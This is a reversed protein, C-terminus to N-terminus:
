GNLMKAVYRHEIVCVVIIPAEMDDKIRNCILIFFAVWHM